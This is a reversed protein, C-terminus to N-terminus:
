TGNQDTEGRKRKERMCRSSLWLLLALLLLLLALLLLLPLLLSPPLTDDDDDGDRAGWRAEALRM